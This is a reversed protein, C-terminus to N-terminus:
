MVLCSAWGNSHRDIQESRAFGFLDRRERGGGGAAGPEPGRDTPIVAPIYNDLRVLGM